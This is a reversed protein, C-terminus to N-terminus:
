AAYLLSGDIASLLMLVNNPLTNQSRYTGSDDDSREETTRTGEFTWAPILVYEDPKDKEPIRYYGLSIRTVEIEASVIQENMWAYSAKLDKEFQATIESFPLLKANGIEGIIRCPCVWSVSTRAEHKSFVVLFTENPWPVRYASNFDVRTETFPSSPVGNYQVSFYCCINNIGDMVSVCTYRDGLGVTEVLADALRKAEETSEVAQKKLGCATTLSDIHLVSERKDQNEEAQPKWMLDACEMGDADLVRCEMARYRSLLAYDNLVTVTGSVATERMAFLRELEANQQNIYDDRAQESEFTRENTQALLQKVEEIWQDVDELSYAGGGHDSLRISGGPVLANLLKIAVQPDIPAPEVQVIPFRDVSPVDIVADVSVSVTGDRFSFASTEREPLSAYFADLSPDDETQAYVQEDGKNVVVEEEPTPVCALLLSSCLILILRKKM